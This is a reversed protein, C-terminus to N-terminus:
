RKLRKQKLAQSSCESYLSLYITVNISDVNNHALHVRRQQFVPNELNYPGDFCVIRMAFPLRKCDKQGTAPNGTNNQLQQDSNVM